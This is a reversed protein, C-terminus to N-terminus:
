FNFRVGLEIQRAPQSSSSRGFFPSTLVGSYQNYNVKNFLNTIQASFTLSYRSSELGGGGFPGGGMGPGGPGGFGVMRGGGGGGGGGRGGGGGGGGGGRGGGGGQAQAQASGNRKGFGFTKSFNTNVSFASPGIAKVGNPYNATLYDRIQVPLLSYLSSPLDSNRNIGAPRDNIATDFNDDRGTTINFPAGSNARIMTFLRIQHPLNVSGGFFVFHRRDTFAPGWEPRLDYNNAPTSLSSDSDSRTWSLTYNGFFTLRQGMRRNLGIIIGHYVSKASSEIEFINGQDPNPRVLTDPFPANINRTRFQNIGKTYIYTVTGILGKPLQQELSLNLNMSYPAKLNPDLTRLITNQVLIDPNGVFPDPYAANRIVISKQTVGDYRLTNEYLNNTLRSYFLGGGGRITTKRSKFPSWAIGLRPSFNNKDQLRSQFEHRLGLSLTFSPTLRIDDQVFWGARYINYRLLPDGQNITFQTARALPSTPDEVARRYQDLSTFTYTGNFNSASLDRVDDYEFQFGGKVTHKKLTITLYDQYELGFTRSENPCCSSGGGMFSDLVNISRGQTKALQNSKEQELELRSEHIMRSNIIFTETLRITHNSNERTSGREPLLFNATGGGGGGGGGFGGGGFGGGFGGFGGGISAFETNDSNSERYNYSLNLTNRNNLLYDFRGGLFLSKSIIPVNAAFPGNLTTAFTNSSGDTTNRDGFFTFSMKKKILPGGFNFSYREQGFDPRTLAFSNRADLVANRANLGFSGRWQDNGPKTIIEIRSFGPRDFEASFPNQNIRIQAIADRPPLRGGSFGDVYIQAGGQGGQGGGAAPGALSQLFDRLEDENEPLNKIFDEGLITANMNQDPETSVTTANAAVDEIINVTAVALTIVLPQNAVPIKLDNVLYTQFGSFASSLTYAGPPINAITFEGNYNTKATRQKGDKGTLIIEANPIVAGVEDVVQGRLVTNQAFVASALLLTALLISLSQAARKIPQNEKKSVDKEMLKNPEM